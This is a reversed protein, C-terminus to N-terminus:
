YVENEQVYYTNFFDVATLKARINSLYSWKVNGRALSTYEDYEMVAWLKNYMIQKNETGILSHQFLLHIQHMWKFSEAFWLSGLQRIILSGWLWRIVM